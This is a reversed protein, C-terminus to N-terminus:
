RVVPQVGAVGTEVRRLLEAVKDVLEMKVTAGRYTAVHELEGGHGRTRTITLGRVDSRYLAELVDNLKEPRVIASILKM